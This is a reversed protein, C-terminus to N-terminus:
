HRGDAAQGQLGWGLVRLHLDGLSFNVPLQDAHIVAACILAPNIKLPILGDTM